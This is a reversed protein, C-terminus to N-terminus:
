LSEIKGPWFAPGGRNEEYWPFDHALVVRVRPIKWVERIRAINEEAKKLDQHLCWHPNGAMGVKIQGEGTILKWNHASDGALYIWAGDASTRALINVHGPLHGPSDVIYLSGDGYFDLARPFPGVPKWEDDSIFRTRDFSFLDQSFLADSNKPYGNEVLPRCEGGVVFTSKKFLHTDGTHDWHLHSICVFDINDPKLGGKELSGVVDGYGPVPGFYRIIREQTAPPYKEVDTRIGLDFVLKSPKESHQILFCLSPLIDKRGPTANTVFLEEVGELAGGDLASVNCYAQNPAPTPLAM